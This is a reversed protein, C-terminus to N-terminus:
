LPAKFDPFHPLNVVSEWSQRCHSYVKMTAVSCSNVTHWRHSHQSEDSTASPLLTYKCCVTATGMTLNFILFLGSIKHTFIMKDLLKLALKVYAVVGIEVSKRSEIYISSTRVWWLSVICERKLKRAWGSGSHTAYLFLASRLWLLLWFWLLITSCKYAM